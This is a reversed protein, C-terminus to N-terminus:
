DEWKWGAPLAAKPDLVKRRKGNEDIAYQHVTGPVEPANSSKPASYKSAVTKATEYNDKASKLFWRYQEPSMTGKVWRMRTGELKVVMGGLNNVQQIEATTVRNVRGRLWALIIGQSSVPNLNHGTPDGASAKQVDLYSAEAADVAEDAKTEAPSRRHGVVKPAAAPKNSNFRDALAKVSAASAPTKAGPVQPAASSVPSRGEVEVGELPESTTGPIIKGSKRETYSYVPVQIVDGNAQVEDRTSYHGVMGGAAAIFSLKGTGPDFQYVNGDITKLQQRSPKLTAAIAEADEATLNPDDYGTYGLKRAEADWQAKQVSDRAKPKAQIERIRNQAAIELDQRKLDEPSPAAALEKWDVPPTQPGAQGAAKLHEGLTRIGEEIRSLVPHKAAFPHVPLGLHEQMPPATGPTVPAQASVPPLPSAPAAQAKPAGHILAHLHEGLTAHHDPSYIKQQMELAKARQDLAKQYGEPDTKPDPLPANALNAYQDALFKRQLLDMSQRRAYADDMHTADELFQGVGPM